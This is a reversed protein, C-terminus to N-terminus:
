GASGSEAEARALFGAMADLGFVYGMTGFGALCATASPSVVSKRRWEERAYINSLHVEVVPIELDGLADALAFSYHTLAGPNIVIGAAEHGAAQVADVLEGEHNTQLFEARLGLMEARAASLKEIEGLTADGYFEPDRNGLMNLNPGHLVRVVPAGPETLGNEDQAQTKTSAM